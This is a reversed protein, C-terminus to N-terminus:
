QLELYFYYTTTSTDSGHGDELVLMEFDHDQQDFGSVSTEELLSAFITNTGDTLLIEEFHDNVGQGTDDYIQTSMCQGETFEINNTYFADHNNGYSFTENVGDVDDSEINYAAELSAGDSTFNFCFM